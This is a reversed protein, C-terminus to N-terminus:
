LIKASMPSARKVMVHISLLYEAMVRVWRDYEGHELM